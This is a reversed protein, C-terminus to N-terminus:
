REYILTLDKEIYPKIYKNIARDSVLDVNKGLADELDYKLGIFKYVGMEDGLRVLFDIDSDPGNEGRAASGFVAASQIGYKKFVPASKKKIIEIDM